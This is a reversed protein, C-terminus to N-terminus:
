IVLFQHIINWLTVDVETGDNVLYSTQMAWVNVLLYHKQEDFWILFHLFELSLWAFSLWLFYFHVIFFISSSFCSKIKKKMIPKLLISTVYHNITQLSVVTDTIVGHHRCHCWTLITDAIVGHWSPIQLSMM